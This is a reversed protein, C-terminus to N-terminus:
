VFLLMSVAVAAAGVVVSGVALVKGVMDFVNLFLLTLFVLSLALASSLLLELLLFVATFSCSCEGDYLTNLGSM